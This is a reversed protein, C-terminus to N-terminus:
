KKGYIYTKRKLFIDPKLMVELLHKYVEDLIRMRMTKDLDKNEYDDLLKEAKELKRRAKGEAEFCIHMDSV